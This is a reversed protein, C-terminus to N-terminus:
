RGAAKHKNGLGMAVDTRSGHKLKLVLNDLIREVARKTRLENRM